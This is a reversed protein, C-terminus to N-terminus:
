IDEKGEVFIVMAIMLLITTKDYFNPLTKVSLVCHITSYAILAPEQKRFSYNEGERAKM